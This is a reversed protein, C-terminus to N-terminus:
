LSFNKNKSESSNLDLHNRDVIKFDITQMEKSAAVVRVRVKDGLHYCVHTKEGSVTM